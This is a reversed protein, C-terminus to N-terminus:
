SVSLDWEKYCGHDYYENPDPTKGLKEAVKRIDALIKRTETEENTSGSVNVDHLKKSM